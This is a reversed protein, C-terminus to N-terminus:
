PVQKEILWRDGKRVFTLYYSAIVEDGSKEAIRATLYARARNGRAEFQTEDFGAFAGGPGSAVGHVAADGDAFYSLRDLDGTTAAVKFFSEAARELAERQEGYADDNVGVADRQRYRKGPLIAPKAFLGLRGARGVVPVALTLSREGDGARNVLTDVYVYARSPTVPEVDGAQVSVVSQRSVPVFTDLLGLRLLREDRLGSDNPNWSLYAFAVQESFSL